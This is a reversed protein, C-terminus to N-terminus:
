FSSNNMAQLLMLQRVINPDNWTTANQVPNPQLITETQDVLQIYQSIASSLYDLKKKEQTIVNLEEILRKRHEIEQPLRGGYSNMSESGLFPNLTSFGQSFNSPFNSLRTMSTPTASLLSNSINSKTLALSTKSPCNEETAEKLPVSELNDDRKAVPKMKNKWFPSSTEKRNIGEKISSPGDNFRILEGTQTDPQKNPTRQIIVACLPVSKHALLIDETISKFNLDKNQYLSVFNSHHIQISRKPGKLPNSKWRQTGDCKEVKSYGCSKENWICEFNIQGNEQKPLTAIIENSWQYKFDCGEVICPVMSRGKRTSFVRKEVRKPSQIFSAEYERPHSKKLGQNRSDEHSVKQKDSHDGGNESKIILSYNDKSDLSKNM